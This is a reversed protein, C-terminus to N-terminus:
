DLVLINSINLQRSIKKFNFKSISWEKKDNYLNIKDNYNLKSM